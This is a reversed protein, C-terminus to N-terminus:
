AETAWLPLKHPTMQKIPKQGERKTRPELDAAQSGLSLCVMDTRKGELFSLTKCRDEKEKLHLFPPCKYPCLPKSMFPQGNYMSYFVFVSLKKLATYLVGAFDEETEGEAGTRRM